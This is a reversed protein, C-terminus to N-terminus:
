FNTLYALMVTTIAVYGCAAPLFGLLARSWDGSIKLWRQYGSRLCLGIAVLLFGTQIWPVGSPWVQIWSMGSTGLIDWGWGFPDSLTMLVFTFNSLLTDVFFVAWMAIGLPLVAPMTQKFVTATTMETQHSLALGSSTLLWFLLPIVWLALM